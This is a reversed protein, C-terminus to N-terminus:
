PVHRDKCEKRGVLCHEHNNYIYVGHIKRTSVRPGRSRLLLPGETAASEFSAAAASEFPSRDHRVQLLGPHSRRSLRSFMEAMSNRRAKVMKSMEVSSCYNWRPQFSNAVHSTGSGAFTRSSATADNTGHRTIVTSAFFKVIVRGAAALLSAFWESIM